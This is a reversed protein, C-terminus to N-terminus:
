PVPLTPGALLARVESPARALVQEAQATRGSERLARVLGVWGDAAQPDLKVAQTFREAAPAPRGTDLLLFGLERQVAPDGPALRLAERLEKGAEPYRRARRFIRALYLRPTADGPDDRAARQFYAAAQAVQGNRFHEVGADLDSPGRGVLLWVGLATLLFAAGAAPAWRPIRERGPPAEDPAPASVYALTQDGQAVPPVPSSGAAEDELRDAVRLLLQSDQPTPALGSSLRRRMGWLEHLAAAFEISLRGQQRLAAVVEPAPVEDHALASLRVALPAREEDRLVRRLTNEVANTGRLLAGRAADADASGSRLLALDGEASRLPRLASSLDRAM